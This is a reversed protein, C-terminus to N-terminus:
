PKLGYYESLVERILGVLRQAAGPAGALERLREATKLRKPEDMLLELTTRAVEEVSLRGILEPVLMERALRNPWATYKIKALFKPLVRKKIQRGLVPVKSLLQAPGELPIEEPYNLPITVVMPVGMFSLEINNTGPITLALDAWQMLDYQLHSFCFIRLGNALEIEGTPKLEPLRGDADLSHYIAEVGWEAATWGALAARIQEESVFPSVSVAFSLAPTKDKLKEAIKLFFALMYQFHVPRSGPMLLIGPSTENGIVQKLKERPYRPKVADLMLNGIVVTKNRITTKKIQEAMWQYPVAFRTFTTEWHFLGESYALAPYRLRKALLAAYTQDGGLFLVVGQGAPHFGTPLKGTLLYRITQRSGVALDVQPMERIVMQEAGSAFPCPPIFVTVRKRWPFAELAALLPKLWGAVEGPSNVTIVIDVPKKMM